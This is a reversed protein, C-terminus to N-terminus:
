GHRKPLRAKYLVEGVQPVIQQIEPTLRSARRFAVVMTRRIRRYVGPKLFEDSAM